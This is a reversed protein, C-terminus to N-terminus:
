WEPPSAVRMWHKAVSILRNIDWANLPLSSATRYAELHNADIMITQSEARGSILGDTM